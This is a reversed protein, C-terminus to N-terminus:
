ESLKTNRLDSAPANVCDHGTVPTVSTDSFLDYLSCFLLIHRHTYQYIFPLVPSNLFTNLFASISLRLCNRSIHIQAIHSRFIRSSDTLFARLLNQGPKCLPIPNERSIRMFVDRPVNGHSCYRSHYCYKSLCTKIISLGRM